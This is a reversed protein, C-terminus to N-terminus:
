GCRVSHAASQRDGSHHPRRHRTLGSGVEVLQLVVERLEGVQGNLVPRDVYEVVTETIQETPRQQAERELTAIRKRLEKPDDAKAREITESMRETLAGLDVDALTAPPRKSAGVKPTAGSDFTRRRRFRIRKTTRLWNPSWVWAEGDALGPLDEVIQPNEGSFSM